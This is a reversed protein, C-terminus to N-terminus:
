SCIKSIESISGKITPIRLKITVKKL